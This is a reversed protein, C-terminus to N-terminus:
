RPLSNHLNFLVMLYLLKCSQAGYCVALNGEGQLHAHEPMEGGEAVNGKERPPGRWELFFM